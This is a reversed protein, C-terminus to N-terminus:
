LGGAEPALPGLFGSLAKLLSLIRAKVPLVTHNGDYSTSSDRSAGWQGEPRDVMAEMAEFGVEVESLDTCPCVCLSFSVTLAFEAGAAAIPLTVTLMCLDWDLDFDVFLKIRFDFELRLPLHECGGIMLDIKIIM